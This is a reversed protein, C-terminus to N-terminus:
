LKQKALLYAQQRLELGKKLEFIDAELASIHTQLEDVSKNELEATASQRAAEEKSMERARVSAQVRKQVLEEHTQTTLSYALFGPAAILYRRSGKKDEPTWDPNKLFVGVAPAKGERVGVLKLYASSPKASSNKEIWGQLSRQFSKPDEEFEGAMIKRALETFEPTASIEPRNKIANVYFSRPDDVFRYTIKGNENEGLRIIVGAACFRHVIHSLENEDCDIDKPVDWQLFLDDAHSPLSLRWDSGVKKCARRLNNWVFVECSTLHLVYCLGPKPENM